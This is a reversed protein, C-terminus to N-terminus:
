PNSAAEGMEIFVKGDVVRTPYIRLPVEAPPSVAEGSRVDFQSLHLPCIVRDGAVYGHDLEAYAHTCIGDLAYLTGGVNVVIFRREGTVVGMITGPRIESVVGAELLTGLGIVAKSASTRM